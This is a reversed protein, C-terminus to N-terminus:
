TRKRRSTDRAYRTQRKTSGRFVSQWPKCNRSLYRGQREELRLVRLSKAPRQLAIRVVESGDDGCVVCESKFRVARRREAFTASLASGDSGTSSSVSARRQRAQSGRPMSAADRREAGLGAMAQEAQSRLAAVDAEFDDKPSRNRQSTAQRWNKSQQQEEVPVGGSDYMDLAYGSDQQRPAGDGAEVATHEDTEMKTAANFEPPPQQRLLEDLSETRERLELELMECTERCDSLERSTCDLEVVTDGHVKELAGHAEALRMLQAELETKEDALTQRAAECQALKLESQRKEAQADEVQRLFLRQQPDSQPRQEQSQGRARSQRPEFAQEDAARDKTSQVASEAANDIAAELKQVMLQLTNNSETMAKIQKTHVKRLKRLYVLEEQEETLLTQGAFLEPVSDNHSDNTGHEEMAAAANPQEVTSASDLVTGGGAWNETRSAVASKQEQGRRAARRRPEPALPQKERERRSMQHTAPANGAGNRWLWQPDTLETPVEESFVLPKRLHAASPIAGGRALSTLCRGSQLYDEIPEGLRFAFAATFNPRHKLQYLFYLTALVTNTAKDRAVSLGARDVTSPPLELQAICADICKWNHNVAHRNVPRPQLHSGMTDAVVPFINMLIRLVVAGDKLSQKVSLRERRKRAESAKALREEARRRAATGEPAIGAPDEESSDDEVDSHCRERVKEAKEPQPQRQQPQEAFGTAWTLLARQDVHSTKRGAGVGEVVM